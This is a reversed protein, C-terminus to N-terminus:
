HVSHRMGTDIPVSNRGFAPSDHVIILKFLKYRWSRVGFGNLQSLTWTEAEISACNLSVIYLSRAVQEQCANVNKGSYVNIYLSLLLISSKHREMRWIYDNLINEIRLTVLTDIELTPAQRQLLLQRLLRPLYVKATHVHIYLTNAHM